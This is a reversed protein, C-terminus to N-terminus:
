SKRIDASSLGKVPAEVAVVPAAVPAKRAFFGRVSDAMTTKPLVVLPKAFVTKLKAAFEPHAKPDVDVDPAVPAVVVPAVTAFYKMTSRAASEIAKCASELRSPENRKFFFDRFAAQKKTDEIQFEEKKFNAKYSPEKSLQEALFAAKKSNKMLLKAGGVCVGAAVAVTTAKVATPHKKVFATVSRKADNAKKCLSSVGTQISKRASIGLALVATSALAVLGAKKTTLEALKIAPVNQAFAALADRAGQIKLQSMVNKRKLTNPTKIECVIKDVFAM